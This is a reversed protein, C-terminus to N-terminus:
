QPNPGATLLPETSLRMKRLLALFRHDSRLGDFLPEVSILTIRPDRSDLTKELWVFAQDNEGVAACDIAIDYSKASLAPSAKKNLEIRKLRLARLGGASFHQRLARLREPPAGAYQESLLIEDAAESDRGQQAYIDSVLVHLLPAQPYLELGSRARTLAQSYNRLYYAHFSALVLTQPSIPDLVEAAQVEASSEEVKREILLLEYAYSAHAYSSNRNIQIARRLERQQKPWDWDFTAAQALAVHADDLNDDMRAAKEAAEKSLASAEAPSVEGLEELFLYSRAILAYAGAFDGDSEVAARFHGLATHLDEPTLKNMFYVGKLYDEYAQPDATSPKSLSKRETNSLRSSIKAALEGAVEGQLKLTDQPSGTVSGAWLHMDSPAQILQVTIRVQESNRTVAGEVIGDVGLEHAIQPVTETTGKYRITSTRSIVRLGPLQALETILADAMGDTFYEQSPDGTLNQFPLVALSGVVPQKSSAVNRTRPFLFVAIVLAAFIAAAAIWFGGRQRWGAEPAPEVDPQHEKCWADLEFKFAYVGGSKVIQLRHVPLGSSKEWRQVTRIERKLYSAIEKWSELRDLSSPETSL